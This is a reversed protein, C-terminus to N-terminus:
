PLLWAGASDGAECSKNWGIITTFEELLNVALFGFKTVM